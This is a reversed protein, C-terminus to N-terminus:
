GLYEHQDREPGSHPAPDDHGPYQGAATVTQGAFEAVKGNVRSARGAATAAM